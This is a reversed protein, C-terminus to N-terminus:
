LHLLFFFWLDIKNGNFETYLIPLNPRYKRVTSVLKTVVNFADGEDTVINPDTSYFHTSFFDIELQNQACFEMFPEAWQSMCTTPGGVQLNPGISKVAKFTAEFLKFFTAQLPDADLFGCNPENWVEFFWNQSEPYRAVIHATFSAVFDM